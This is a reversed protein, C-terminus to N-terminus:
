NIPIIINSKPQQRVRFIRILFNSSEPNPVGYARRPERDEENEAEPDGPLTIWEKYLVNVGAFSESGTGECTVTIAEKMSEAILNGVVPGIPAFIATELAMTEYDEPNPSHMNM